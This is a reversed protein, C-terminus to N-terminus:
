SGASGIEYHGRIQGHESAGKIHNLRFVDHMTVGAKMREVGWPDIAMRHDSRKYITNKGLTRDYMYVVARVGAIATPNSNADLQLCHSVTAVQDSAEAM